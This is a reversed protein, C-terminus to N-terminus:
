RWFGVLEGLTDFGFFIMLVNRLAFFLLLFLGVFLGVRGLDPINKGKSIRVISIVNYVVWGLVGLIILPNALFSGVFDLKFLALGARTCGCFPCYLHLLDHTLCYPIYYDQLHSNVFRIGLASVAIALIVLGALANLVALRKLQEKEFNKM